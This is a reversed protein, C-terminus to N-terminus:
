CLPRKLGINRDVCVEPCEYAAWLDGKRIDGQRYHLWGLIHWIKSYGQFQQTARMCVAVADDYKGIKACIWALTYNDAPNTSELIRQSCVEIAKDYSGVKAYSYGITTDGTYPPENRIAQKYKEMSKRYRGSKIVDVHEIINDIKAQITPASSKKEQLTYDSETDSSPAIADEIQESKSFNLFLLVLGALILGAVILVLVFHKGNM